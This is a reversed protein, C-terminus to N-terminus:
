RQEEMQIRRIEKTARVIMLIAIVLIIFCVAGGTCGTMIKQFQETDNGGFQTLMATELALMSVLAAALQLVKAASMVPSLYKRYKVVNIIAMTMNYFAYLAMAYIMMGPYSFGGDKRVVMIVVGTLALNMLLLIMGCLRYRRWEHLMKEGFTNRGSYHLLLFRMVALFCYYVALTGFWLSRYYIGVGLKMLSYFVNLGLSCYLSVHLKFAVDSFYRRIVPFTDMLMNVHQKTNRASAAIRICVLTFAYASFAYIPYAIIEVQHGGTFVYGLAAAALLICLVTMWLRPYFLRVMAGKFREM